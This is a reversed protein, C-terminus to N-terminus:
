TYLALYPQSFSSSIHVQYLLSSLSVSCVALHLQFALTRQCHGPLDVNPIRVDSRRQYRAHKPFHGVTLVQIARGRLADPYHCHPCFPAPSATVLSFRPLGFIHYKSIISSPMYSIPALSSSADSRLTHFMRQPFTSLLNGFTDSLKMINYVTYVFDDVLRFSRYM